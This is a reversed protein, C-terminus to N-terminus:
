SATSNDNIAEATGNFNPTYGANQGNLHLAIAMHAGMTMYSASLRSDIIRFAANPGKNLVQVDEKYLTVNVQFFRMNFQGAQEIQPQTIDFEKGKQYSGGILGDYIFDEDIQRGGDFNERLNQRLYAICPDKQFVNDVLAPTKRIYRKTAVTLQDLEAM